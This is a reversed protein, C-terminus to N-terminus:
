DVCTTCWLHAGSKVQAVDIFSPGIRQGITNQYNPDMTELSPKQTNIAFGYADYHMVSGYDYAYGYYNVQKFVRIVINVSNEFLRKKKRQCFIITDQLVLTIMNLMLINIQIQDPRNM